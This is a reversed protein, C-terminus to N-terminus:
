QKKGQKVMNTIETTTLEYNKLAEEVSMNIKVKKDIEASPLKFSKDIGKDDSVYLSEYSNNNYDFHGIETSANEYPVIDTKMIENVILNDFDINFTERNNGTNKKAFELQSSNREKTYDDCMKKFTNIDIQADKFQSGVRIIDKADNIGHKKEIKKVINEYSENSIKEHSQKADAKLNFHSKTNSKVIGCYEYYAERNGLIKFIANNLSFNFAQNQIEESSADHLKDPHFQKCNRRYYKKLQHVYEDTFYQDETFKGTMHMFAFLDIKNNILYKVTGFDINNM